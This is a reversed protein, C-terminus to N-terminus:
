QIIESPTQHWLREHIYFFFIKVFFSVITFTVCAGVSGFTWYALAFTLLTSFTEWSAGKVICRTHQM